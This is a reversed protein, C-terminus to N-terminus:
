LLSITKAIEEHRKLFDKYNKFSKKNKKLGDMHHSKNNQMLCWVTVVWTGKAKTLDPRVFERSFFLLLSPASVLKNLKRKKLYEMIVSNKSLNRLADTQKQSSSLYFPPSDYYGNFAKCEVARVFKKRGVKNILVADVNANHLKTDTEQNLLIVEQNKGELIYPM